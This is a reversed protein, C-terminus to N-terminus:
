GGLAEGMWRQLLLISHESQVGNRPDVENNEGGVLHWGRWVEL